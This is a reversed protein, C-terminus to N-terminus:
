QVEVGTFKMLYTAQDVPSATALAGTLTLEACKCDCTFTLKFEFSSTQGDLVGTVKILFEDNKYAIDDSQATLTL